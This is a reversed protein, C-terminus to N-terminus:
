STNMPNPEQKFVWADPAVYKTPKPRGDKMGMPPPVVPQRVRYDGPPFPSAMIAHQPGARQIAYAPPPPPGPQRRWDRFVMAILVFLGGFIKELFGLVSQLFPTINRIFVGAEKFLCIGFRWSQRLFTLIGVVLTVCLVVMFKFAQHVNHPTVTARISKWVTAWNYNKFQDMWDLLLSSFQDEENKNGEQRRKRTIRDEGDSPHLARVVSLQVCLGFREEVLVEKVQFWYHGLALGELRVWLCYCPQSVSPATMNIWKKGEQVGPFCLIVAKMAAVMQTEWEDVEIVDRYAGISEVYRREEFWGSFLQGELCKKVYDLSGPAFKNKIRIKQLADSEATKKKAVVATSAVSKVAKTSRRRSGKSKESGHVSIEDESQESFKGGKDGTIDEDTEQQHEDIKKFTRPKGEGVVSSSSDLSKVTTDLKTEDGISDESNNETNDKDLDPPLESSEDKLIEQDNTECNTEPVDTKVEEIVKQIESVDKSITIGLEGEGNLAEESATEGSTAALLSEDEDVFPINKDFDVDGPSDAM